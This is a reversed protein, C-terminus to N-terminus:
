ISFWEELALQMRLMTISENIQKGQTINGHTINSHLINSLYQKM